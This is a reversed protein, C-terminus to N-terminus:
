GASGKRWAAALGLAGALALALAAPLWAPMGGVPPVVQPAAAFGGVTSDPTVGYLLPAMSKAHLAAAAAATLGPAEYYLTRFARLYSSCGQAPDTCPISQTIWPGSSGYAFADGTCQTVPPTADDLYYSTYAFGAINQELRQSMVLSGQGGTVLEWQIAGQAVTDPIGDITVGTTNLDNRYTMGSAAPAYDFFDMMGSIAHVRLYTRVDQRREYFVHDRQTLPGSNAGVYSRIARVPGSKNIAFAGEGDSFTNESRVCVGPAFLAKHRDLIDVGSAGTATIRLEDSIWRDSFHHSYYATTATSNEPNPGNLANYTTLYPGSNLSFTYTVYQQGAGPSLSGDSQFLYVYGEAAGDLPDTIRVDLRSPFVTGPPQSAPPAPGGADKAMFVIEDDADLTTNPDPGTFTGSDTYFLNTVGCPKPFASGAAEGGGGGGVGYVDCFDLTAREDVQLPLQQWSGKWRFAVIGAPDSGSLWPVDAGTLVVPDRPRDLTSGSAQARPATLTCAAALALLVVLTQRVRM